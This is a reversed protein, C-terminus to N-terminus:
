VNMNHVTNAEIACLMYREMMHSHTNARRKEFASQEFLSACWIRHVFVVCVCIAYTHTLTRAHKENRNDCFYLFHSFVCVCMRVRFCWVCLCKESREWLKEAVGNTRTYTTHPTHACRRRRRRGRADGRFINHVRISKNNRRHTTTACM